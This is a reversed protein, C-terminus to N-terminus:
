HIGLTRKSQELQTFLQQIKQYAEEPNLKGGTQLGAIFSVRQAFEQINANFALHQPSFDGYYPSRPYLYANLEQRNNENLFTM